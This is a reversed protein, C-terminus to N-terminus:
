SVVEVATLGEEGGSFRKRECRVVTGPDFAWEEGVPVEGEVLYAGTSLHTAEVPRWVDVGEDLLPMYITVM